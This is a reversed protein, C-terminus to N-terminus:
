MHAGLFSGAQARLNCELFCLIEMIEVFVSHKRTFDGKITYTAKMCVYMVYM